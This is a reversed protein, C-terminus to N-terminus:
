PLSTFDEGKQLFINPFICTPLVKPQNCPGSIKELGFLLPVHFTHENSQTVFLSVTWTITVYSNEAKMVPICFSVNLNTIISTTQDPHSL